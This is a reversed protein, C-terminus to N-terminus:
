NERCSHIELLFHESRQFIDWCIWLNGSGYCQIFNFVTKFLPQVLKTLLADPFITNSSLTFCSLAIGSFETLEHWVRCHVHVSQCVACSFTTFLRHGPEENVCVAFDLCQSVVSGYSTVCIAFELCQNIVDKRWGSGYSTVCVALELCQNIVDKRWGSGYSTVCVALELCQNIVDKRWGSGYSTVCVAFEPKRGREELWQRLQNCLSCVGLVPKHCGEEMWQWLQNCHLWQWLDWFVIM